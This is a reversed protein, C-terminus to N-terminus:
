FRFYIFPNHTGAALQAAAALLVLLLGADGAARLALRAGPSAREREWRALRGLLPGSGVAAALLALAVPPTLYAAVTDPLGGGVPQGAMAALYRVAHGLSPARFLVWGAVVVLLAYAHQLPRPAAALVAGLGRRELVLFAGHYLGWAAFTWSAGHWLGCLLFVVALNRYVRGPTTRSGGLPIYLYDRFWTSLSIHWRRWFDTLSRATYPHAFNELFHFGFLHGLGIAMDSYGSFDFYIQGAYCLAGLWAVAPTLEGPALAFVADAPGALTNAVLVKKGLGVAFRRVGLAFRELGHPRAELQRAVDRYRVIPGAVLQPFLAIYLALTLPNRQAPVQRRAVDIVYSLAQFTFFSIGIPLVVRPVALPDQGLLALGQNLTVAAFAAYKFWGLLALNAAVALALGLGALRPGPAAAVGLALLYNVAISALMVLVFRPEGWAYFVLSAALLVANRLPRPALAYAALVAPLFLFLFVPSSFVM